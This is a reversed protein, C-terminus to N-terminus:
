IRRERRLYKEYPHSFKEWWKIVKMRDFTLKGRPVIQTYPLGYNRMYVRLTEKSIHLMECVENSGIIDTGM